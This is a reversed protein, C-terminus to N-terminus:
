STFPETFITTKMDLFYHSEKWGFFLLLKLLQQNLFLVQWLTIHVSIEPKDDWSSYRGLLRTLTPLAGTLFSKDPSNIPFMFSWYTKCFMDMDNEDTQKMYIVQILIRLETM